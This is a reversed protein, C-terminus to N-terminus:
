YKEIHKEYNACIMRNIFISPTHIFNPDLEEIIEEVECICINAAKAMVPNFNRATANYIVNGFQDSKHAKILAIDAQLAEELLYKQGKFERVEKQEELFTGVGTKTFFAPIGSGGSRIKEALSGQPVLEVEIKKALILQELTKNEGVYSAILKSIQNNQLLIGIGRNDIGCNNSIITLNKVGTHKLAHILIEPTGCLGFGGIMITMNDKVIDTLIKYIDDFLKIHASKLQQNKAITYSFDQKNINYNTLTM